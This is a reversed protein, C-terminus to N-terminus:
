RTRSEFRRARACTEYGKFESYSIGNPAKLAYRDNEAATIGAVCLSASAIVMSAIHQRKIEVGEKHQRNM